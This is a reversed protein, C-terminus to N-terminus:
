PVYTILLSAMSLVAVVYVDCYDTISARCNVLSILQNEDVLLKKKEYKVKTMKISLCYWVFITTLSFLCTM